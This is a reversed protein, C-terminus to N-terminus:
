KTANTSKKSLVSWLVGISTAIVSIAEQDSGGLTYGGFFTLTHRLFAFLQTKMKKYLTFLLCYYIIWSCWAM